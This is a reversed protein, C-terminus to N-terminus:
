LSVGPFLQIQVREGTRVGGSEEPVVLLANAGWLSHRAAPTRVPRAQLIDESRWVWAPVFWRRGPTHPLDESLVAPSWGSVVPSAGGLAALVPRVFLMYTVVTSAPTGPLGFVLTAACTGFLMPRGPKIRVGRILINVGADELVEGLLDYKGKSTGGTILLVDADLNQRISKRLRKRKDPIIGAIEGLGGDLDVCAVLMESSSSRIQAEEPKQRPDVLEDGTALISVRARAAVRVKRVGASVLAGLHVPTIRSGSGLLIDGNRAEEGTRRIHLGPQPTSELTLTGGAETASELPVVADAERPLPAGTMVRVATRERLVGRFPWGASAEGIIELGPPAAAVPLDRQCRVAFGDRACVDFAPVDEPAVVDEIIV